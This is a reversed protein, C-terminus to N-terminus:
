VGGVTANCDVDEYYEIIEKYEENLRDLKRKTTFIPM